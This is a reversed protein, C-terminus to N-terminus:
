WTDPVRRNYTRVTRQLKDPLDADNHKTYELTAGSPSFMLKGVLQETRRDYVDFPNNGRLEYAMDKFDRIVDRELEDLTPKPVVSGAAAGGACGMYVEAIKRSLM